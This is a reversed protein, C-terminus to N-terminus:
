EPHPAGLPRLERETRGLIVEPPQIKTVEHVAAVVTGEPIMLPDSTPNPVTVLVTGEKLEVLAQSVQYGQTGDEVLGQM